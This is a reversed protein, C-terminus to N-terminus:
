LRQFAARCASFCDAPAGHFTLEGAVLDSSQQIQFRPKDVVATADIYKAKIACIQFPELLHRFGSEQSKAANSEGVDVSIASM